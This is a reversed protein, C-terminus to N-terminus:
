ASRQTKGMKGVEQIGRGRRTVMHCRLRKGSLELIAKKLTNESGEDSDDYWQNSTEMITTATNHNNYTVM